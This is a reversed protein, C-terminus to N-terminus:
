SPSPVEARNTSVLPMVSPTGTTTFEASYAPDSWFCVPSRGGSVFNPVHTPCGKLYAHTFLFLTARATVALM